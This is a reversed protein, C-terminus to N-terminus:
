PTEGAYSALKERLLNRARNVRSKVTGVRVGLAQAVEEYSMDQLDRLVLAARYRAPLTQVARQVVDAREADMMVDLAGSRPDPLASLDDTLPRASEAPSKQKRSWGFFRRRRSRIADIAVNTAIRFLWARFSGSPHYKEARTYLRIFVEQAGDLAEDRDGLLGVLYGTVARQHRAVLEEFARGDGSSVRAVLSADEVLDEAADDPSLCAEAAGADPPHTPRRSFGEFTLRPGPILTLSTTNPSM